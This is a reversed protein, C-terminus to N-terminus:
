RFIELGRLLVPLNAVGECFSCRAPRCPTECLLEHTQCKCPFSFAGSFAAPEKWGAGHRLGRRPM